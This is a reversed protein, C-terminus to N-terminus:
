ELVTVLSTPPLDVDGDREVVSDATIPGAKLLFPIIPANGNSPGGSTHLILKSQCMCSASIEQSNMRRNQSVRM